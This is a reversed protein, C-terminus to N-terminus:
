FIMLHGNHAPRRWYYRGDKVQQDKISPLQVEVFHVSSSSFDHSVYLRRSKNDSLKNGTSNKRSVFLYHDDVRFRYASNDIVASVGVQVLVLECVFVGTRGATKRNTIDMRYLPNFSASRSSVSYYILDASSVVNASCM